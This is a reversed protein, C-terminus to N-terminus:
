NKPTKKKKPPFLGVLGIEQLKVPKEIKDGWLCLVIIGVSNGCHLAFHDGLDDLFAKLFLNSWPMKLPHM